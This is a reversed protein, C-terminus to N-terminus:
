QVEAADFGSAMQRPLASLEHTSGLLPDREVELMQTWDYEM